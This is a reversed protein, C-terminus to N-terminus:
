GCATSIGSTAGDLKKAQPLPAQSPTAGCGALALALLAAAPARRVSM